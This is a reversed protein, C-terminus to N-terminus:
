LQILKTKEIISTNFLLEGKKIPKLALYQNINQLIMPSVRGPSLVKFHSNTLSENKDINSIAYLGKGLNHKNM